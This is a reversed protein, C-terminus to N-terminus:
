QKVFKKMSIGNASTVRIFYIGNTLNSVDLTVSNTGVSQTIITQGLYNIIEVNHFDIKANIIIKNHAPNPVITFSMLEMDRISLYTEKVEVPESEGNPCVTVIEWTYETGTVFEGAQIYAPSTVTGLLNGNQLVKYGIAGEVASWIITATTETFTVKPDTISQCERCNSLKKEAPDSEGGAECVVKVEWTHEANTDFTEDTYSSEKVFSAILAGDRYINSVPKAVGEKTGLLAFYMSPYSLPEWNSNDEEDLRYMNVGIPIM